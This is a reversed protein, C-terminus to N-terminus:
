TSRDPDHLEDESDPLNAPFDVYEPLRRRERLMELVEGMNPEGGLAASEIRGM